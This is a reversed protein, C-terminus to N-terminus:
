APSPRAAGADALCRAPRGREASKALPSVAAECGEPMRRAFPERAGNKKPAVTVTPSLPISATDARDGKLVRNVAFAPDQTPAAARSHAVVHDAAVFALALGAACIITKRM